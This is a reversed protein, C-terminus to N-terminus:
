FSRLFVCNFNILYLLPCGGKGNNAVVHVM